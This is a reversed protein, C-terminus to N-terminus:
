KRVIFQIRYDAVM